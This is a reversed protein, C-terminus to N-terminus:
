RRKADPSEKTKCVAGLAVENQKVLCSLSPTDDKTLTVLKSGDKNHEVLTVDYGRSLYFSVTQEGSTLGLIFFSSFLIGMVVIAKLM